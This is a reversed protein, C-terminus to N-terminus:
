FSVLLQDASFQIVSFKSFNLIMFEFNSVRSASMMFIFYFKNEDNKQLFFVQAFYTKRQVHYNFPLSSLFYSLFILSYSLSLSTSTLPPSFPLYISISLSITHTRAHTNSLYHSSSLSHFILLYSLSLTPCITNHSLSLSLTHSSFIPELIWASLERLFITAKNWEWFPVVWYEYGNCDTCWDPPKSGLVTKLSIYM